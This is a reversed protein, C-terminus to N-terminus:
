TFFTHTPLVSPEIVEQQQQELQTSSTEEAGNAEGEAPFHELSSRSDSWHGNEGLKVTIKTCVDNLSRSDVFDYKLSKIGNKKWTRAHEKLLERKVQSILFLM